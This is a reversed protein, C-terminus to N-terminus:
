KFVETVERVEDYMMSGIIFFFHGTNVESNQIRWRNEPLVSLWHSARGSCKQAEQVETLSQGWRLCM